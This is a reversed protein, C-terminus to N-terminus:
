QHGRDVGSQDLVAKTYEGVPVSPREGHVTIVDRTGDRGVTRAHHRFLQFLREGDRGAEERQGIEFALDGGDHLRGITQCDVLCSLRM